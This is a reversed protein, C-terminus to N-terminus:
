AGAYKKTFYALVAADVALAGLLFKGHRARARGRAFFWQYAKIATFGISATWMATDLPPTDTRPDFEKEGTVPNIDGILCPAPPNPDIMM